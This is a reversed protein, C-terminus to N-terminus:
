ADVSPHKDAWGGEVAFEGVLVLRVCQTCWLTDRPQVPKGDLHFAASAVSVEGRYPRHRYYLIPEGCPLHIIRVIEGAETHNV